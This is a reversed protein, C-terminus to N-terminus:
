NKRLIYVVRPIVEAESRITHCNEFGTGSALKRVEAESYRKKYETAGREAVPKGWDSTLYQNNKTGDYSSDIVDIILYGRDVLIASYRVLFTGLDFQEVHYTWNLALLLDVRDPLRAPVLGDDQWLEVPAHALLALEEGALIAERCIDSGKLRTFGKQAFWILNLGCGCGTEFIATKKPLHRLVWLSPECVHWRTVRSSFAYFFWDGVGHRDIIQRVRDASLSIGCRKEALYRKISQLVSM